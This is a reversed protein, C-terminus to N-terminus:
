VIQLAICFGGPQEDIRPKKRLIEFAIKQYVLEIINQKREYGNLVSYVDTYEVGIAVSVQKPTVDFISPIILIGVPKGFYQSVSVGVSKHKRSSDLVGITKRRVFFGEDISFTDAYMSITVGIIIIAMRPLYLLRFKKVIFRMLSGILIIVSFVVIGYQLGIAWFAFAIILPTYIGFGKIGVVQRALAIVTAVIPLMLVLMLAEASVGQDTLYRISPSWNTLTELSISDLPNM